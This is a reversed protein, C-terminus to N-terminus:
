KGIGVEDLVRGVRAAVDGGRYGFLRAFYSLLEEATLYDYYYPNEALFGIRQRVAADGVPRGLIRASGATPYLLQMLLKIATSKGAGNPGLFGFVEGANVNLTLGDLARYRRNGVVLQLRGNDRPRLVVRHILRGNTARIDARLKAMGDAKYRRRYNFDADILDARIDATQGDQFQEM